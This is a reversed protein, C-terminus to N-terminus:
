YELMARLSEPCLNLNRQRKFWLPSRCVFFVLGFISTQGSLRVTMNSNQITQNYLVNVGLKIM